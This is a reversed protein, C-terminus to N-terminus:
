SKKIPKEQKKKVYFFFAPLQSIKDGNNFKYFTEITLKHYVTHNINRKM